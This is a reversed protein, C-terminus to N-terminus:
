HAVGFHRTPIKARTLRCRSSDKVNGLLPVAALNVCCHALTGHLTGLGAHDSRLESRIERFIVLEMGDCSDFGALCGLRLRCTQQIIQTFNIESQELLQDALRFFHIRFLPRRDWRWHLDGRFCRPVWSSKLCHRGPLNGCTHQSAAQTGAESQGARFPTEANPKRGIGRQELQDRVLDLRDLLQSSRRARQRKNNHGAVRRVVSRLPIERAPLVETQLGVVDM